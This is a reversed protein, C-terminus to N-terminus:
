DPPDADAPILQFVKIQRDADDIWYYIAFGEFLSVDLQRGSEDRDVYDSLDVPSEEIRHFHTLLRRRKSLSLKQLLDFVDVAILLRYRM